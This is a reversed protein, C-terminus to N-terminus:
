IKLFPFVVVNIQLYLLELKTFIERIRNTVFHNYYQCFGNASIRERIGLFKKRFKEMCVCVRVHARACVCARVRVCVRVFACACICVCLHVRVFACHMQADCVCVCVCVCFHVFVTHGDGPLIQKASVRQKYTNVDTYLHMCVCECVYMRICLHMCVCVCVYMRICLYMCVCVCVYM